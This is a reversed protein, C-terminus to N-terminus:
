QVEIPTCVDILGILRYMRLYHGPQQDTLAKLKRQLQQVSMALVSPMQEITFEQM